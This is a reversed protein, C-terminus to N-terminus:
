GGFVIKIVALVTIMFPISVTYVIDMYDPTHKDKNFFDYVEKSVAVLLVVLFSVSLMVILTLQIFLGILLLLLLSTVYLVNGYFAHLLKDQPILTNLKHLLNEIM